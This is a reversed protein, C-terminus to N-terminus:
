IDAPNIELIKIHMDADDVWYSLAYEGVIVLHLLRGCDDYEEADSQSLPDNVIAVIAVRINKRQGMSLGELFEVVELAILLTYNRV